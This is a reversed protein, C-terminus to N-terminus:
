KAFILVAASAKRSSRNAASLATQVAAAMRRSSWMPPQGKRVCDVFYAIEREFATERSPKWAEPPTRWARTLDPQQDAPRTRHEGALRSAISLIGKECLVRIGAPSRSDKPMRFSAEVSTKVAGHDGQILVHGWDAARRQQGSAFVSRPPGFLLEDYGPRPHGPGVGHGLFSQISSGHRGSLRTPSATALRRYRNGCSGSQLIERIKVYEPWFRLVQAVMLFKGIRRSAELMADAEALTLAMPKKLSSM